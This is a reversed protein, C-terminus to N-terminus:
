ISNQLNETFLNHFTLIKLPSQSPPLTYITPPPFMSSGESGRTCHMKFVVYMDRNCQKSFM